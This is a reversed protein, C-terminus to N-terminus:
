GSLVAPHLFSSKGTMQHRSIDATKKPKYYILETKVRCNRKRHCMSSDPPTKKALNVQLIAVCLERVNANYRISRTGFYAPMKCM